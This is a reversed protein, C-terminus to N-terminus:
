GDRPMHVMLAALEPDNAPDSNWLTDFDFPVQPVSSDSANLPEAQLQTPSQSIAFSPSAHNTGICDNTCARGVARVEHGPEEYALVAADCRLDSRCNIPLLTPSAGGQQSTEQAAVKRLHGEKQEARESAAEDIKAALNMALQPVISHIDGEKAFLRIAEHIFNPSLANALTRAFDEESWTNAM